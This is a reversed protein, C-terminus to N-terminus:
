ISRHIGGFVVGKARGNVPIAVSEFHDDAALAASKEGDGVANQL